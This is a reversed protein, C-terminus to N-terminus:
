KHKLNSAMMAQYTPRASASPPPHVDFGTHSALANRAAPTQSAVFALLGWVPILGITWGLWVPAAVTSAVGLMRAVPLPAPGITGALALVGTWVGAVSLAALIAYLVPTARRSDPRHLLSAGLVTGYVAGLAGVVIVAPLSSVLAMGVDLSQGGRVAPLTREWPRDLVGLALGALAGTAMLAPMTRVSLRGSRIAHWALDILMGAVLVLAPFAAPTAIIAMSTERVRQGELAAAWRLAWPVFAMLAPRLLTLALAAATAGGAFPSSLAAAILWPVTLAVLLPPFVVIAVPRLALIGERDLAQAQLLLFIAAVSAWGLAMGVRSTTPAVPAAAAFLHVTGLTAFAMGGIIMVHFPAWLTVDIGYVRHWYDDWPFALASSLAGLGALYFGLPAHFLRFLRVNPHRGYAVDPAARDHPAGRAAMVSWRLVGALAIAGTLAIGSLLLLHPPIFPRDRGIAYHWQIDWAAGAVFAIQSVLLAGAFPLISRM